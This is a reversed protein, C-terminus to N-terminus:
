CRRRFAIHRRYRVEFSNSLCKSCINPKHSTANGCYHCDYWITAEGIFPIRSNFDPFVFKWDTIKAFEDQILIMTMVFGKNTKSEVCM